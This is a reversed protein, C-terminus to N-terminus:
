EEKIDDNDENKRILLKLSRNGKETLIEEKIYFGAISKKNGADEWEKISNFFRGYSPDYYKGNTKVIFHRSFDCYPNDNGQGPLGNFETVEPTGLWGYEGNETRNYNDLKSGNNSFRSPKNIFPYTENGSTGTHIFEWNNVLFCEIENKPSLTVVQSNVGQIELANNFLYAFTGCEGDFTNLLESYYSTSNYASTYYGLQSHGKEPNFDDAFLNGIPQQVNL